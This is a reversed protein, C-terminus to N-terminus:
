KTHSMLSMKWQWKDTQTTQVNGVGKECEQMKGSGKLQEQTLLWYEVLKGADQQNNCTHQLM